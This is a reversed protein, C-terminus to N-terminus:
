NIKTKTFVDQTFNLVNISLLNNKMWKTGGVLPRTAAAAATGEQIM